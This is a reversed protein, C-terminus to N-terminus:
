MCVFFLILVSHTPCRVHQDIVNRYRAPQGKKIQGFQGHWQKGTRTNEFPNDYMNPYKNSGKWQGQGQGKAKDHRYQVYQRVPESPDLFGDSGGTKWGGKPPAIQLSELAKEMKKVADVQKEIHKEVKVRKDQTVAGTKGWDGTQKTQDQRVVNVKGKKVFSAIIILSLLALGVLVSLRILLGRSGRMHVANRVCRFM